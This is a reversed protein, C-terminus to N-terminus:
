PIHGLLRRLTLFKSRSIIKLRFLVHLVEIIHYDRTQEIAM